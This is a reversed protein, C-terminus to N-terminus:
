SANEKDQWAVPFSSTIKDSIPNIIHDLRYAIGNLSSVIITVSATIIYAPSTSLFYIDMYYNHLNDNRFFRHHM